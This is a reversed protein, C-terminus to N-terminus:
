GARLGETYEPRHLVGLRDEVEDPLRREDPDVTQQAPETGRVTEREDERLSSISLGPPETLSRMPSGIISAASCAPSSLGPPVIM